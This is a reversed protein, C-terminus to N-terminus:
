RKWQQILDELEDVPVDSERRAGVMRVYPYGDRAMLLVGEGRLTFTADLQGSFPHRLTLGDISGGIELRELLASVRAGVAGAEHDSGAWM